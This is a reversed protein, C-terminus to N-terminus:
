IGQFTQSIVKIRVARRLYIPGFAWWDSIREILSRPEFIKVPLSVGVVNKGEALLKGARKMLDLIIGEQSKIEEPNCCEIGGTKVLRYGPKREEFKKVPVDTVKGEILADVLKIQEEFNSKLEPNLGRESYRTGKISSVQKTYQPADNGDPEAVSYGKIHSKITNNEYRQKGKASLLQPEEQM